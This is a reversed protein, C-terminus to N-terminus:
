ERNMPYVVETVVETVQLYAAPMVAGLHVHNGQLIEAAINM